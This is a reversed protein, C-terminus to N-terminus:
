KTCSGDGLAPLNKWNSTLVEFDASASPTTDGTSTLFVADDKIGFRDKLEDVVEQVAAVIRYNPNHASASSSILIGIERGTCESGATSPIGLREIEAVLGDPGVLYHYSVGGKLQADPQKLYSLVEETTALGGTPLMRLVIRQYRQTEGGLMGAAIGPNKEGPPYLRFSALQCGGAWTEGRVKRKLNRIMMSVIEDDYGGRTDEASACTKAITTDEVKNPYRRALACGLFMMDRIPKERCMGIEPLTVVRWANASPAEVDKCDTSPGGMRDFLDRLYRSSKDSDGMWFAIVALHFRASQSHDDCGSERVFQAFCNEALEAASRASFRLATMCTLISGQASLRRAEPTAPRISNLIRRLEVESYNRSQASLEVLNCATGTLRHWMTCDVMQLYPVWASYYIARARETQNLDQADALASFWISALRYARDGLLSYAQSFDAKVNISLEARADHDRWGGSLAILSVGVNALRGANLICDTVDLKTLDTETSQIQGCTTEYRVAAGGKAKLFLFARWGKETGHGTALEVRPTCNFTKSTSQEETVQCRTDLEVLERIDRSGASVLLYYASLLAVMAFSAFGIKFLRAKHGSESASVLRGEDPTLARMGFRGRRVLKLDQSGLTAGEGGDSWDKARSELLRRARQGPLRSRDLERIALPALTDHVLRTGGRAHTQAEGGSDVLLTHLKLTRAAAVSAAGAHSYQENLESPTLFKSTGLSTTHASLIDLTLGSNWAEPADSRARELRQKLYDYLGFGEKAINGYLQSTFTPASYSLRRAEVWMKTLLVQLTPAIPADVDELLRDAIREALGTEISLGWKERSRKTKAVGVVAEVIEARTLSSVFIGPAVLGARRLGQEVEPLWEKRFSLIINGQPKRPADEFVSKISQVFQRFELYNEKEQGILVEELQDVIVVLPRKSSNEIELWSEVLDDQNAGDGAVCTVLLSALSQATTARAYRVAHSLELRPLIGAALLSSKGVGSQGYLLIVPKAPQTTLLRFFKRMVACRGFFAHAHASGFYELGVYPEPPLDVTAPSPLGWCLDPDPIKGGSGNVVDAIPVAFVTGGKTRRDDEMLAFRLLGVVVGDIIVPAGSLGPLPAGKGASAEQCFLQIVMSRQLPVSSATVTGVVDMGDPKIDPFGHSRWAITASDEEAYELHGLLLPKLERPKSCRLVAWDALDDYCGPEITADTEGSPFVLRVAGRLEATPAPNNRDCVVHFATVVLEATVLFATGRIVGGDPLTVEVRAIADRFTSM